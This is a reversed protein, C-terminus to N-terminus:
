WATYFSIILSYFWGAIALILGSLAWRWDNKKFTYISCFITIVMAIFVPLAWTFADKLGWDLVFSFFLVLLSIFALVNIIGFIKTWVKKM